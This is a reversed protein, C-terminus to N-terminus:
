DPPRYSFDVKVLPGDSVVVTKELELQYEGAPLGNIQYQGDESSVAFWPHDFVAVYARMWPHVDCRVPLIEPVGFTMTQSAPGNMGFNVPSNATTLMHVNHLTNDSSRVDLTQGVRLVLVHPVYVCQVQNLIVTPMADIGPARVDRIFLVVDALGGADSISVFEQPVKIDHNGCRVTTTRVPKNWGALTIRGTISGAGPQILRAPAAAGGTSARDCGLTPLLMVAFISQALNM